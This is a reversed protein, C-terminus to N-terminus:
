TLYGRQNLVNESSVKLTIKYGGCAVYHSTADIFDCIANRLRVREGVVIKKYEEASKFVIVVDVRPQTSLAIGRDYVLVADCM